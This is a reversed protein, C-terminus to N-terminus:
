FGKLINEGGEGDGRILVVDCHPCYVIEQMQEACSRAPEPVPRSCNGCLGLAMSAVTQRLGATQRLHDHHLLLESPLKALLRGIREPDRRTADTAEWKNLEIFDRLVRRTEEYQHDRNPM